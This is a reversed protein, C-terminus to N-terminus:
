YVNVRDNYRDLASGSREARPSPKIPVFSQTNNNSVNSSIIPQAVPQRMNAERTLDTNDTSQRSVEAGATGQQGGRVAEVQPSSIIDPSKNMSEDGSTPGKAGSKIMDVKVRSAAEEYASQKDEPNVQLAENYYKKFNPHSTIQEGTVGKLTGSVSESYTTLSEVNGKVVPQPQTKGTGIEKAVRDSGSLGAVMAISSGVAKIENKFKNVAEVQAELRATQMDDVSPEKRGMGEAETKAIELTRKDRFETFKQYTDPDKRSFEMESFKTSESTTKDSSQGTVAAGAKAGPVDETGGFFGKIASIGSGIKEGVFKGTKSGAFAGLAGGAITGIGAGVVTGAGPIISGIAAGLKAGALGGAVAGAAMGTGEGVAGSKEVTATNGVEKRAISAQEPNIEGSDVRTQIEELKAQKSDAAANYGKYATYAGIGVAAAAGLAKGAGSTAFRAVGGGLSLAGSGVAKAGKILAGGAKKALGGMGSVAGGLDLGGEDSSAATAPSPKLRGEPLDSPVSPSLSASIKKLENLQQKLLDNNISTLEVDKKASEAMVEQTTQINDAEPNIGTIEPKVTVEDKLSKTEVKSGAEVEKVKEVKNIMFNFIGKLRAGVAEGLDALNGFGDIETNKKDNVSEIPQDGIVASKEGLEVSKLNIQNEQSERVRVGQGQLRNAATEFDVFGGQKITKGSIDSELDRGSMNRYQSSEKDYELSGESIKRLLAQEKLSKQLIQTQNELATIMPKLDFQVSLGTIAKEVKEMTKFLENLQREREDADEGATEREYKVSLASLLLGAKNQGQIKELFDKFEKDKNNDM